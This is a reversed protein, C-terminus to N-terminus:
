RMDVVDVVLINGIYNSVFENTGEIEQPQKEKPDSYSSLLAM